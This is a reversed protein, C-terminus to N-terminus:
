AYPWNVKIPKMLQKIYLWPLHTFQCYAVSGALASRTWCILFTSRVRFALPDLCKNWACTEAAVTYNEMSGCSHVALQLLLPLLLCLCLQVQSFTHPIPPVAGCLKLRPVLRLHTTLRVGRCSWGWPLLLKNLISSAFANNQDNDSHVTSYHDSRIMRM